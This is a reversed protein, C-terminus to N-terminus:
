LGKKLRKFQFPIHVLVYQLIGTIISIILPINNANSSISMALFTTFFCSIGFAIYSMAFSMTCLIIILSFDMRNIITIHIIFLVVLISLCLSPYFQFVICNICPIIISATLSSYIHLTNRSLKRYIYFMSILIFFQKIIFNLTVGGTFLVWDITVNKWLFYYWSHIM